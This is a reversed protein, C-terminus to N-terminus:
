SPFGIFTIDVLDATDQILVNAGPNNSGRVIGSLTTLGTLDLTNSAVALGTGFTANILVDGSTLALVNGEGNGSRYTLRGAPASDFTTTNNDGNGITVNVTSNFVGDGGFTLSNNDGNGVTVAVSGNASFGAATGITLVNEGEGLAITTAGALVVDEDVTVDDVGSTGTYRFSGSFTSLTDPTIVATNDGAALNITTNGGVQIEGELSVTDASANGTLSLAKGVSFLSGAAASVNLGAGSTVASVTLGGGVTLSNVDVAFDRVGSATFSGGVALDAEFVIDNAGATDSSIFNGGVALDDVITIVDDGLGGLVTLNGGITGKLNIEDNGNGGSIQVRGPFAISADFNIVDAKNSGTINIATGVGSVTVSSGNDEVKVQGGGLTTITLDGSPNSVFLQGSLVSITAPVARDELSEIRPRFSYLSRM